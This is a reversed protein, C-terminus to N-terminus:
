TLKRRLVKGVNSKPMDAVFSIHKPIKYKTLRESCWKILREETMEKGPKLVVFAKLRQGSENDDVGVCGCDLISEHKVIESEVENPYVNFGSVLVMDKKRDVVHYNGNDDFKVLDGTHLWRDNSLKPNPNAKPLQGRWYGAMVQPGKVILEGVENKAVPNGHEDVVALLTNKLPKGISNNFASDYPCVTVGPSAETLGYAQIVNKGTIAFMQKATNSHIASGGGVILMLEKFNCKVFDDNNVLANFLTNVGPILHFRDKLEKIFRPIDRPNTILKNKVGYKPMLFANLMMAFIHYLPLPAIAVLPKKANKFDYPLFDEAQHINALLNTHTLMAAKSVGTTGGTYQFLAVDSSEVKVLDRKLKKAGRLIKKLYLKFPLQYEAILGKMKIVKNAVLGKIGMLDGITCIVVPTNALSTKEFTQAAGDWIFLLKVQSDLLCHELERTTYQPNINVAICGAKLIGYLIPTYCLCNPMMIAIRDSNGFGRDNLWACINDSIKAVQKYTLKAGMNELAVNNSYKKCYYDIYNGINEFRAVEDPYTIADNNDFKLSYKDIAVGDTNSKYRDVLINALKTLQPKNYNVEQAALKNLEKFQLDSNGDFDPLKEDFRINFRFYNDEHNTYIQKLMSHQNQASGLSFAAAQMSQWHRLQWKQIQQEEQQFYQEGLGFSSLLINNPGADEIRTHMYSLAQLAPSYSTMIGDVAYLKRSHKSDGLQIAVPDFYGPAACSAAIINYLKENPALKNDILIGEQSLLDYVPILCQKYLGDLTIDGFQQQLGDLLYSIQYKQEVLSFEGTASFKNSPKLINKETDQFIECITKASNKINGNEDRQLYLASLVAGISTGIFLDFLEAIRVEKDLLKSCEAELYELKRATILGRVGGADIALVTYM